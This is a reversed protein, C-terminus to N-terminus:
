PEGKTMGMVTEREPRDGPPQKRFHHGTLLGEGFRRRVGGASEPISGGCPARIRRNDLVTQEPDAKGPHVGASILSRCCRVLPPTRTFQALPTPKAGVVPEISQRKPALRTLKCGNCARESSAFIRSERDQDVRRLHWSQREGTQSFRGTDLGYRGRPESLVSPPDQGLATMGALSIFNEDPPPLRLMATRCLGSAGTLGFYRDKTPGLRYRRRPEIAQALLLGASPRCRPGIVSSHLGALRWAVSCTIRM